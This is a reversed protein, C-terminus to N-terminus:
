SISRSRTNLRKVVSVPHPPYASSPQYFSPTGPATCIPVATGTQDIAYQVGITSMSPVNQVGRSQVMGSLGFGNWTSQQLHDHIATPQLYIAPIPQDDVARSTDHYGATPDHHGNSYGNTLGQHSTGVADSDNDTPEARSRRHSNRRKM